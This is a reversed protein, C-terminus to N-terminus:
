KRVGGGEELAVRHASDVMLNVLVGCTSYVLDRRGSDLLAVM